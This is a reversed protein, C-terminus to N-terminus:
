STEKGVTEQEKLEKRIKLKIAKYIFILTMIGIISSIINSWTIYDWFMLWKPFNFIPLIGSSELCWFFIRFLSFLLLAGLIGLLFAVIILLRFFPTKESAWDKEAFYIKKRSVELKESRRTKFFYKVIDNLYKATQMQSVRTSVCVNVVGYGICFLIASLFFLIAMLYITTAPFQVVQYLGAFFALVGIVLSILFQVYHIRSTEAQRYEQYQQEFDRLLFEDFYEENKSM